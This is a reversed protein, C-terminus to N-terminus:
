LLTNEELLLGLYAILESRSEKRKYRTNELVRTQTFSLFLDSIEYVVTILGTKEFRRAFSLQHDDIHEGLGTKRPVLIPSHGMQICLLTIGAGAHAVITDAEEIKECVEGFSLFRRWDCNKPEYSCSGLQIFIRENSFSTAALRDIEKVLRDFPFKETGTIVFIM